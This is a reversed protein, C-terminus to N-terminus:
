KEEEEENDTSTSSSSSSEDESDDEQLGDPLKKKTTTQTLSFTRPQPQSPASSALGKSYTNHLMDKLSTYSTRPPRVTKSVGPSHVTRSSPQSASPFARPAPLPVPSQSHLTRLSPQSASPISPRNLLAMRTKSHEPSNVARFTPQSSSPVSTGNPQTTRPLPQSAPVHTQKPTTQSAPVVVSAPVQISADPPTPSPTRNVLPQTPKRDEQESLSTTSNAGGNTDEDDDSSPDEDDGAEDKLHPQPPSVAPSPSPSSARSPTSAESTAQRLRSPSHATWRAPERSALPSSAFRSKKETEEDADEDADAHAVEEQTNEVQADEDDADEDAAAQADADDADEDADAHADEEQTNEIHADEDHADEEPANEMHADENHADEDLVDEEHADAEHAEEDQASEGRADDLVDEERADEKHPNEEQADEDLSDAWYANEEDADEDKDSEDHLEFDGRGSRRKQAIDYENLVRLLYKKSRQGNGGLPLGRGKVVQVLTAYSLKEYPNAPAAPRVLGLEPSGSKARERFDPKSRRLSDPPSVSSRKRKRGVGKKGSWTLGEGAIPTMEQGLARNRPTAGYSSRPARKTPTPRLNSTPPLSADCARYSPIVRLICDTVPVNDFVAGVTDTLDVDAHWGNQLRDISFFAYQQPWLYNKKYREEIKYWVDELKERDRVVLAFKRPKSVNPEAESIADDDTAVLPPVEVTVLM